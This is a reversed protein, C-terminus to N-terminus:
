RQRNASPWCILGFPQYQQGIIKREGEPLFRLSEEPGSLGPPPASSGSPHRHYYDRRDEGPPPPLRSGGGFASHHALARLHVRYVGYAYIAYVRKRTHLVRLRTVCASRAHTSVYASRAYTLVRTARKNEKQPTPGEAWRCCSHAKPAYTDTVGRLPTVSVTRRLLVSDEKPPCNARLALLQM